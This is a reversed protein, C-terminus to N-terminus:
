DCIPCDESENAKPTYLLGCQRCCHTHKSGMTLMLNSLTKNEKRLMDITALLEEIYSTNHCTGAGNELCDLM